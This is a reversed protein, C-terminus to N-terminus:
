TSSEISIFYLVCTSSTILSDPFFSLPHCNTSLLICISHLHLQRPNPNLITFLRAM